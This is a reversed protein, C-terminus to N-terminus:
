FPVFIPLIIWETLFWSLSRPLSSHLSSPPVSIVLLTYPPQERPTALTRNKILNFIFLIYFTFDFSCCSKNTSGQMYKVLKLQFIEILPLFYSMNLQILVTNRWKQSGTNPYKLSSRTCSSNEKLQKCLTLSGLQNFFFFLGVLRWAIYAYSM